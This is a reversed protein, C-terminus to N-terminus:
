STLRYTKEANLYFLKYQEEKSFNLLAKKYCSILENFKYFLTDPPCNSGFMCRDMGFTEIATEFYRNIQSEDIRRQFVCGIGSLKMSVNQLMKFPTIRKKWLEFGERSLDIPWSLHEIIMKINPFTKALDVVDDLQHDYVQVDFSFNFEKLLGFGTRWQPNKMYDSKDAMRLYPIKHYNLPMRIGRMNSFESHQELIAAIHPDTLNAFAVIGHPFGYKNAQEQLWKTETVPNDPFGFAQVHISKVIKHGKIMEKYNNPLFNQRLSDYNGILKEFEPINNNLWAYNNNLDWLHMHTDIIEDNYM